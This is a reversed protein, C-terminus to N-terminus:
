PCMLMVHMYYRTTHDFNHLLDIALSVVNTTVGTPSPDNDWQELQMYMSHM